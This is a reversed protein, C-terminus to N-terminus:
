SRKTRTESLPASILLSPPWGDRTNEYSHCPFSKRSVSHTLTALLPSVFLCKQTETCRVLERLPVGGRIDRLQTRSVGGRTNQLFLSSKSSQLPTSKKSFSLSDALQQFSTIQWLPVSTARDQPVGSPSVGPCHPHIDFCLPQPLLLEYSYSFLPGAFDFPRPFVRPQPPILLGCPSM